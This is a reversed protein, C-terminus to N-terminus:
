NVTYGKSDLLSTLSEISEGHSLYITKKLTGTFNGSYTNQSYEFATTFNTHEVISGKLTKPIKLELTSSKIDIKGLFYGKMGELNILFAGIPSRNRTIGGFESENKAIFHGDCLPASSINGNSCFLRVSYAKRIPSYLIISVMEVKTTSYTVVLYYRQNSAGNSLGLHDPGYASLWVSDVKGEYFQTMTGNFTVSEDDEITITSTAPAL